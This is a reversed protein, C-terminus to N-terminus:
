LRRNRHYPLGGRCIGGSQSPHVFQQSPLDIVICRHLSSPAWAQLSEQYAKCVDVKKELVLHQRLEVAMNLSDHAEVTSELGEVVSHRLPSHATSMHPVGECM